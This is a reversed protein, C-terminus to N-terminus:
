GAQSGNQIVVDEVVEKIASHVAHARMLGAAVIRDQIYFDAMEVKTDYLCEGYQALQISRHRHLLLPYRGAASSVPSVSAARILRTQRAFSLSERSTRRKRNLTRYVFALCGRYTITVGVDWSEPSSKGSSDICPILLDKGPTCASQSTSRTRWGPSTRASTPSFPAPFLM